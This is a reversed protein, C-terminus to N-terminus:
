TTTATPAGFQKHSKSVIDNGKREDFHDSQFCLHDVAYAYVMLVSEMAAYLQGAM